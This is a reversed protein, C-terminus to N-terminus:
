GMKGTLYARTREDVPDKFMKETNDYEILEGMYMFMSRDSIRMAQSMNHTVILITVEKKLQDMLGEIHKTAIPDLASTPEDMLLIDPQLALSRAICLRQQQGGSMGLASKKLRDKVEDWIAAGRLSNEVIEDLKAKNKIGHTRPGYAINDYISMPFPNAQQFVMGVKKRLLTTDAKPSYIDEGDILVKGEIKVNEVLDNMRNLCKLFTSKGCGSPGIFATIANERIEMNVHKLAHNTGYHLNLDQVSIKTNEM